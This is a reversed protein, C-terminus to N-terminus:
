RRWILERGPSNFRGPEIEELRSILHSIGKVEEDTTGEDSSFWLFNREIRYEQGEKRFIQDCVIILRGDAAGGYFHSYAFLLRGNELEIMNGESKRPNQETPNLELVVKPFKM